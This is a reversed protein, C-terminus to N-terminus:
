FEFNVERVTSVHHMFTGHAILIIFHSFYHIHMVITDWIYQIMRAHSYIIFVRGQAMIAIEM